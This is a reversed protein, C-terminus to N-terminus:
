TIKDSFKHSDAINDKYYDLCKDFGQKFIEAYQKRHDGKLIYFKQMQGLVLATTVCGYDRHSYNYSIYFGGYTKSDVEVPLNNEESVLNYEIIGNVM